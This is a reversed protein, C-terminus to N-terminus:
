EFVFINLLVDKLDLVQFSSEDLNFGCAEVEVILIFDHKLENVDRVWDHVILLFSLVLKQLQDVGTHGVLKSVREIRNNGLVNFLLDEIFVNVWNKGLNVSFGHHCLFMYVFEHLNWAAQLLSKLNLLGWGIDHAIHNLVKKVVSLDFCTLKSLIDSCEVYSVGNFIDHTNLPFCSFWFANWEFCYELVYSLKIPLILFTQIYINVARYNLCILLSDHM